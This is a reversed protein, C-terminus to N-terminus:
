GREGSEMDHGSLSSKMLGITEFLMPIGGLPLALYPFFMPMGLVASKTNWSSWAMEFGIFIFVCLFGVVSSHIVFLLAKKMRGHLMNQLFEMGIHNGRRMAIAGGLFIVWVFSYRALEGAWAIPENLVYRMFVNSVTTFFMISFVLLLMGKLLREYVRILM